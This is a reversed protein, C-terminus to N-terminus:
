GHGRCGHAHASKKERQLVQLGVGLKGEAHLIGAAVLGRAIHTGYPVAHCETVVSAQLPWGGEWM